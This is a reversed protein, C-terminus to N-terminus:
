KEMNHVGICGMVNDVISDVMVLFFIFTQTYFSNGNIIVNNILTIRINQANKTDIKTRIQTFTM